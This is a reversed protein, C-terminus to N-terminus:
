GMTRRTFGMGVRNMHWRTGVGALKGTLAASPPIREGPEHPGALRGLVIRGLDARSLHLQTRQTRVGKNLRFSPATVSPESPVPKMAHTCGDRFSTDPFGLAPTRSCGPYRITEGFRVTESRIGGSPM